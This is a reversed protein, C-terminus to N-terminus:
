CCRSGPDTAQRAWRHQEFQRRTMVPGCTGGTGHRALYHDYDAEGSVERLYRHVTRALTRLAATM